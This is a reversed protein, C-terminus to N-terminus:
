YDRGPKGALFVHLRGADDHFHWYISAIADFAAERDILSHPFMECDIDFEAELYEEVFDDLCGYVGVYSDTVLGQFAEEEFPFNFMMKLRDAADPYAGAYDDLPDLWDDNYM